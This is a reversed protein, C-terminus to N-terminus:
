KFLSKKEGQYYNSFNDYEITGDDYTCRAMLQCATKIHQEM